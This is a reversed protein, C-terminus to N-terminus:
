KLDAYSKQRYSAAKLRQQIVWVKEETEKVINPGIVKHENLEIQGIYFLEVNGVMCPKM